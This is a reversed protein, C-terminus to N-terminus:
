FKKFYVSGVPQNLLFVVQNPIYNQEEIEGPGAFGLQELTPTHILGPYGGTEASTGNQSTVAVIGDSDNGNFLSPWNGANLANEIACPGCNKFLAILGSGFINKFSVTGQWNAPNMKGAIEAVPLAHPNGATNNLASLNPSLGSGQGSADGLMDYAAGPVNRGSVVVKWGLVLRGDTAFHDEIWPDMLAQTAFPSGYHPTAITILKHINGAGFSAQGTYQPLTSIQRAVLGGMSHAVVDAQAAAAAQGAVNGGKRFRAITKNIDDFVFPANYTFSLQNANAM